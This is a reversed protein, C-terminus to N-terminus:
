DLFTAGRNVKNKVLRFENIAHSGGCFEADKKDIIMRKLSASTFKLIYVM